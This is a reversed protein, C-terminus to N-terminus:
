DAADKGNRVAACRARRSGPYAPEAEEWWDKGYTERLVRTRWGTGSFGLLEMAQTQTLEGTELLPKMKPYFENFNMERQIQTERRKKPKPRSLLEEMWPYDKPDLRRVEPPPLEYGINRAVLPMQTPYETRLLQLAFEDDEMARQLKGEFPDVSALVEDALRHDVVPRCGEFTLALCYAAAMKDPHSKIRAECFDKLMTPLAEGLELATAAQKATLSYSSEELPAGTRTVFLHTSSNAPRIECYRRVAFTLAPPARHKRVAFRDKVRFHGDGSEDFWWESEGIPSSHGAPRLMMRALPKIGVRVLAVFANIAVQRIAFDEQCPGGLIWFPVRLLSLVDGPALSTMGRTPIILTENQHAEATM